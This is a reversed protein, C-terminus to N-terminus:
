PLPFFSHRIYPNYPVYWRLYSGKVNHHVRVLVRDVQFRVFRSGASFILSEALFYYTISQSIEVAVAVAAAAALRWMELSMFMTIITPFIITCLFFFSCAYTNNGSPNQSPFINGNYLLLLNRVYVASLIFAPMGVCYLLYLGSIVFSGQAIFSM